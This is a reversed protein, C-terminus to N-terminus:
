HILPGWFMRSPREQDESLFFDRGLKVFEKLSLQGDCNEDIVSFSVIAAEDTLGLCKYFLKYEEVSILGSKDKDLAKFLYPLFNHVKKRLQKDNMVHHMDELYQETTVLNYPGISGWREEWMTKIVNYFEKQHQPSLHGLDVFRDVLIQLDDFSIVGDKNIDLLGHFTRMKRRWFESSGREKKYSENDLDSDSDSDSESQNELQTERKGAASKSYLRQELWQAAKLFNGLSIRTTHCRANVQELCVIGTSNAKPLSRTVVRAGFRLLSLAM